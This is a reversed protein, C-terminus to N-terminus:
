EISCPHNVAGFGPPMGFSPGTSGRMAVRSQCIPSMNMAEPLAPPEVPATGFASALPM